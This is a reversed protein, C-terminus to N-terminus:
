AGQGSEGGSSGEGGGRVRPDPEGTSADLPVQTSDPADLGTGVEGRERILDNLRANDGHQHSGGQNQEQAM